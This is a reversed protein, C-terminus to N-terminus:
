WGYMQYLTMIFRSVCHVICQHVNIYEITIILLFNLKQPSQTLVKKPKQFKKKKAIELYVSPAEFSSANLKNTTTHKPFMYMDKIM